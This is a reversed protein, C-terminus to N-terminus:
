TPAGWVVTELADLRDAESLGERALITRAWTFIEGNPFKRGLIIRLSFILYIGRATDIGISSANACQAILMKHIHLDDFHSWFEPFDHRVMPLCDDSFRAQQSEIWAKTQASTMILM